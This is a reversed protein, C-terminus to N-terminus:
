YGELDILRAMDDISHTQAVRNRAETLSRTQSTSAPRAQGQPPVKAATTQKQPPTTPKAAAKAMMDDYLKAKNLIVWEDASAMSLAAAPIGTKQAYDALAKINDPNKILDPAIESLRTSQERVFSEHALKQAAARAQEAKDFQKLGEQYTIYDANAQTPNQRLYAQWDINGYYDEFQKRQDPLINSLTEALAKASDIEVAAAKRAEIAAAKEKQVVVERKDENAKVAAQQEPSLTAFVAKHEADWWQPAEVPAVAEATDEDGEVPEPAEVEAEAGEVPTEEVAEAEQEVVPPAKAEVPAPPTDMADVFALADAMPDSPTDTM